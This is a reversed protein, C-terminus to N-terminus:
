MQPRPWRAKAWGVMEPEYLRVGVWRWNLLEMDCKLYFGDKLLLWQLSFTQDRDANKVLEWTIGFCIM